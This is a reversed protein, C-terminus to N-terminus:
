EALYYFTLEFLSAFFSYFYVLIKCTMLINGLLNNEEYYYVSLSAWFGPYLFSFSFFPLPPFPLFFSLFFAALSSYFGQCCNVKARHCSWQSKSPFVLPCKWLLNVVPTWSSRPGESGCESSRGAAVHICTSCLHVALHIGHWIEKLFYM